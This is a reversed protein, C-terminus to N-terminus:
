VWEHRTKDKLHAVFSIVQDLANLRLWKLASQISTPLTQGNRQLLLVLPVGFVKKDTIPTADVIENSIQWSM